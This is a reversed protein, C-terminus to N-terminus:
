RWLKEEGIFEGGPLPGFTAGQGPGGADAYQAAVTTGPAQAEFDIVTDALAPPAAWLAAIVLAPLRVTWSSHHKRKKGSRVM